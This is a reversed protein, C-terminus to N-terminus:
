ESLNIDLVEGAKVDPTHSMVVIGGIRPDYSAVFPHHHYSHVLFVFLWVPGRGSILVGKRTNADPAQLQHLAEPVIAGDLTFEILTVTDREDTTFNVMFIGGKENKQQVQNAVTM